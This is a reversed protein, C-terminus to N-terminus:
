LHLRTDSFKTMVFLILVVHKSLITHFYKNRLFSVSQYKYFRYTPCKYLDTGFSTFSADLFLM